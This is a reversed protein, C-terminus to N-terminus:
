ADVCGEAFRAAVLVRQMRGSRGPRRRGTDVIYGAEILNAFRATVSSYAFESLEERVEDSICGEPGFRFVTLFVLFELRTANIRDAADRSTDPAGRRVLPGGEHPGNEYDHIVKM